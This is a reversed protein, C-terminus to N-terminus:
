GQSAVVYAAVDEIEQQSLQGEFAPMGGGGNTIQEVAAEVDVTRTVDATIPMATGGLERAAATVRAQDIDLLAVRAGAAALRRAIALGIGRAAGTVLAAQGAATM